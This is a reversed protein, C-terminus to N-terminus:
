FFTCEDSFCINFLFNANHNARETVIECFQLRRDFDDDNLEQLLQIKYPHFKYKKLVRQVSTRSVGTAVALQRTSMTSDMAVQGLVALEVPENLVPNEGQRKKNKVSGSERFKAVLERVIKGSVHKDAHRQNFLNAARAGCENNKFYLEIMEVREPITYVM